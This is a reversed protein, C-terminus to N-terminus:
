PYLDLFKREETTYFIKSLFEHRKSIVFYLRFDDGSEDMREEYVIDAFFGRTNPLACDRTDGVGASFIVFM